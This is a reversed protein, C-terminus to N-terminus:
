RRRDTKTHTPTSSLDARGPGTRGPPAIGGSKMRNSNSRFGHQIEPETQLVQAKSKKILRKELKTSWEDKCGDLSWFGPWRSM